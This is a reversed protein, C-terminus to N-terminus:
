KVGPFRYADSGVDKEVPGPPATRQQSFASAALGLVISTLMLVAASKHLLVARIVDDRVDIKRV